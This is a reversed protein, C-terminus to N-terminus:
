GYRVGDVLPLVLRSSFNVHQQESDNVAFDDVVGYMLLQEAVNTEDLPPHCAASVVLSCSRALPMRGAYRFVFGAIWLVSLLIATLILCLLLAFPSWALNKIVYGMDLPTDNNGIFDRGSVLAVFISQSALWHLLTMSTLFPISFKAPISLFYTSRQLGRSKSTRLPKRERAYSMWEKSLYMRTFLDNYAM